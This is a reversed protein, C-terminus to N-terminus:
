RHFMGLGYSSIGCLKYDKEAILIEYNDTQYIIESLKITKYSSKFGSYIRYRNVDWLNFKAFPVLKIYNIQEM